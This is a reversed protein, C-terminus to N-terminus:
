YDNQQITEGGTATLLSKLVAPDINASLSKTSGDVM